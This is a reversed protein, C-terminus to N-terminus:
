RQCGRMSPLNKDNDDANIDQIVYEIQKNKPNKKQKKQMTM